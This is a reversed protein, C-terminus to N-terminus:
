LRSKSCSPGVWLELLTEAVRLASPQANIRKWKKDRHIEALARVEDNPLREDSYERRQNRELCTALPAELVFVTTAPYRSLLPVLLRENHFLGDIVVAGVEPMAHELVKMLLECWLPAKGAFDEDAEPGLELVMHRLDDVEVHLVRHGLAKRMEEAVVRAVTTKGSGPPGVLVAIRPGNVM